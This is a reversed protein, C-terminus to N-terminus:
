EAPMFQASRRDFCALREVPAMEYLRACALLIAFQHNQYACLEDNPRCLEEMIGFATETELLELRLTSSTDAFSTDSVLLVCILLSFRM